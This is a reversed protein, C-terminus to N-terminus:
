EFLLTGFFDWRWDHGAVWGIHSERGGNEADNYNVSFGIMTRPGARFAYGLDPYDAEAAEKSFDIVIEVTYHTGNRVIVAQTNEPTASHRYGRGSLLIYYQIVPAFNELQDFGFMLEIGDDHWFEPDSNRDELIDDTIEVLFFLKRPEKRNWGVRATGSADDPTPVITNLRKIKDLKIIDADGWEDTKGDLVFDVEKAVYIPERYAPKQRSACGTTMLLLVMSTLTKLSDKSARM